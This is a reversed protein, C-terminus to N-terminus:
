LLAIMEFFESQELEDQMSLYLKLEFDSLKDFDNQIDHPLECKVFLCTKPSLDEKVYWTDLINTNMKDQITTKLREIEQNIFFEDTLNIPSNQLTSSNNISYSEYHYLPNELINNHALNAHANSVLMSLGIASYTLNEVLNM